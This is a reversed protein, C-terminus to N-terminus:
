QGFTEFNVHNEVIKLRLDVDDNMMLVEASFLAVFILITLVETSFLAVQKKLTQFKQVGSIICFLSFM